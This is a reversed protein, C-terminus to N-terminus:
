PKITDEDGSILYKDVTLSPYLSNGLKAAINHFKSIAFIEFVKKKWM